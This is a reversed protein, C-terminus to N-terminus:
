KKNKLIKFLEKDFNNKLKKIEEPKLGLKKIVDDRSECKKGFDCCFSLSGWCTEKMIKKIEKENM